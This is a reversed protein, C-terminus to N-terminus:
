AWFQGFDTLSSALTPKALTPWSWFKAKSFNAQTVITNQYKKQGLHCKAKSSNAQTVFFAPRLSMQGSYCVGALDGQGTGGNDM